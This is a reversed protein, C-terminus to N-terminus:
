VLLTRSLVAFSGPWLIPVILALRWLLSRDRRFRLLLGSCPLATNAFHHWRREIRRSFPVAILLLIALAVFPLTRGYPGNILTLVGWIQLGAFTLLAGSAHWSMHRALRDAGVLPEMGIHTRSQPFVSAM